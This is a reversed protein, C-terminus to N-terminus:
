PHKPTPSPHTKVGQYDINYVIEADESKIADYAKSMTSRWANEDVKNIKGVKKLIRRAQLSIIPDNIPFNTIQSAIYLGLTLFIFFLLTISSLRM